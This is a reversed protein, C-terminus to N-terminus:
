GSGVLSGPSTSKGRHVIGADHLGKLSLLLFRAAPVRFELPLQACVTELSPGRVPFVFVIHCSSGRGPHCFGAQYTVLNSIDRVNQVIENQM